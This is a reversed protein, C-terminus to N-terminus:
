EFVNSTGELFTAQSFAVGAQRLYLKVKFKGVSRGTKGENTDVCCFVDVTPEVFSRLTVTSEVKM